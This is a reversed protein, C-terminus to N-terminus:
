STSYCPFILPDFATSRSTASSCTSPIRTRSSQAARKTRRSTLPVARHRGVTFLGLNLTNASSNYSDEHFYNGNKWTSGWTKAPGTFLARIARSCPSTMAACSCMSSRKRRWRSIPSTTRYCVSELFIRM